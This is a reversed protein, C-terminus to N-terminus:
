PLVEDDHAALDVVGMALLPWAVAILLAFLQLTVSAVLPHAGARVAKRHLLQLPATLLSLTAAGGAAYAARALIERPPMAPAQSRFLMVLVGFTCVAAVAAQRRRASKEQHSM